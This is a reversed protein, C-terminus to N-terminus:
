SGRPTLQGTWTAPGHVDHDNIIVLTLKKPLVLLPSVMLHMSDTNGYRIGYWVMGYFQRSSLIMNYRRRGVAKKQYPLERNEHVRMSSKSPKIQALSSPLVKARDM